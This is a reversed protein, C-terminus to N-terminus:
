KGTRPARGAKEDKGTWVQPVPPPVASFVPKPPFARSYREAEAREADFWDKARQKVKWGMKRPRVFRERYKHWFSDRAFTKGPPPAPIDLEYNM